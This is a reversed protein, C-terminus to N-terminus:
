CFRALGLSKKRNEGFVARIGSKQYFNGNQPSFFPFFFFLLRGVSRIKKAIFGWVSVKKQGLTVVRQIQHVIVTM